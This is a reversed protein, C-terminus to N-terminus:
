FQCYLFLLGSTNQLFPTRLFKAFNVPFYWRQLRKKILTAPQALAEKKIFSCAEVHLKILFSIKACTNAQPNQLFKQSRRKKCFVGTAAESLLHLMCIMLKQDPIKILIKYFCCRVFGIWAGCLGALTNRYTM